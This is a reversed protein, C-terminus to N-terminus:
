KEEESRLAKKGAEVAMQDQLEAIKAASQAERKRHKSNSITALTLLVAVIAFVIAGTIWAVRTSVKLYSMIIVVVDGLLLAFFLNWGTSKM